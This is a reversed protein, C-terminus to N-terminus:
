YNCDKCLDFPLLDRVANRKRNFFQFIGIIHYPLIILINSKKAGDPLNGGAPVNEISCINKDEIETKNIRRARQIVRFLVVCFINVIMRIREIDSHTSSAIFIIKVNLVLEM